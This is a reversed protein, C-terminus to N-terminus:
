PPALEFGSVTTRQSAPPRVRRSAVVVSVTLDRPVDSLRV